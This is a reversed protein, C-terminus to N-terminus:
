LLIIMLRQFTSGQVVEVSFDFQDIFKSQLVLNSCKQWKSHRSRTNSYVPELKQTCIYHDFVNIYFAILIDVITVSLFSVVIWVTNFSTFDVISILVISYLLINRVMSFYKLIIEINETKMVCVFQIFHLKLIWLYTSIYIIILLMFRKYIFTPKKQELTSQALRNQYPTQNNM